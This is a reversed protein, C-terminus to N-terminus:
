ANVMVQLEGDIRELLGRLQEESSALVSLAPNNLLVAMDPPSAELGHAITNALQMLLPFGSREAVFDQLPNHHAAIADAFTAPLNWQRVVQAGVEAHTVGLLQQEATHLGLGESRALELVQAMMQPSTMALILKGVDHLLGLLFAEGADMALLPALERAAIATCLSHRWYSAFSFGACPLPGLASRLSVAALASSVTRLGLMQVADGIRSVKGGAGYFPSNALRLVRVTLAQDREIASICAATSADDNRLLEVAALFARPLSPLSLIARAWASADLPSVSASPDAATV